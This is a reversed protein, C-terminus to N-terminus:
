GRRAPTAMARAHPSLAQTRATNMPPIGIKLAIHVLEALSNAEMKRMVRGRHAKVTIISIGLAAAVQKNLSGTVIRGMVERERGSLSDHRNQLEQLEAMHQLLLHSRAIAQTAAATLLAGDLPKLLFEMAGAKMAHVILPVDARSAMAIIPTEEREAVIRDLPDFHDPEPVEVDIVVCGAAPRPACELFDQTSAFTAPTWGSRRILLHLSARVSADPDVVFVTSPRNPM